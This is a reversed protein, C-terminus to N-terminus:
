KAPSSAPASSQLREIAKKAETAESGNPLIKLYAEFVERAEESRSMKELCVALKFTATADNEKYELAERYRSEAAIYNRRRFYFDGVEIAKAAKHPDWPHFEGVGDAALEGASRGPDDKDEGPPPSLDIETDKSSSEGSGDLASADVRDSRPPASNPGPLNPAPKSPSSSPPPSPSDQSQAHRTESSPAQSGPSSPANSPSSSSSNQARASLACALVLICFLTRM